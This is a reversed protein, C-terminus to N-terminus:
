RSSMYLVGSSPKGKTQANDDVTERKRRALVCPVEGHCMGPQSSDDTWKVWLMDREGDGYSAHHSRIGWGGVGFVTDQGRPLAFPVLGLGVLLLGM